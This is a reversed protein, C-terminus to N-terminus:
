CSFSVILLMRCMGSKSPLFCGGERSLSNSLHLVLCFYVAPVCDQLRTILDWVTANDCQVHITTVAYQLILFDLIRPILVPGYVARGKM